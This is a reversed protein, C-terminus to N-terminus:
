SISSVQSAGVAGLSRNGGSKDLDLVCNFDGGLVVPNGGRLLGDLGSFYRKRELENNPAYVSLFRFPLDNIICNVYVTRGDNDHFHSIIKACLNMRLIIGVGGSRASGFSWFAHGPIADSVCRADAFCTFHTEQLLVVDADCGRLYDVMSQQATASRLGNVNMSVILLAMIIVLSSKSVCILNDM